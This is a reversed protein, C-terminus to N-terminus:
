FFVGVVPKVTPTTNHHKSHLGFPDILPRIPQSENLSTNNTRWWPSAEMQVTQWPASVASITSRGSSEVMHVCTSKVRTVLLNKADRWFDRVQTELRVSDQSTWDEEMVSHHLGRHEESGETCCFHEITANWPVTDQYMFTESNQQSHSLCM